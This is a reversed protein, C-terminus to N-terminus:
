EQRLEPLAFDEPALPEIRHPDLTVTASAEVTDAATKLGVWLGAYRSLAWGILGYDMLEQVSAPNLVPMMADVFAYESQHPQTSSACVHDDGALLLREFDAHLNDALAGAPVGRKDARCKM